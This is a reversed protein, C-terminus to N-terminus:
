PREVAHPPLRNAYVCYLPDHPPETKLGRTVPPGDIRKPAVLVESEPPEFGGSFHLYAGVLWARQPEKM